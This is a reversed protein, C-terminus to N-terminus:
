VKTTKLFKKILMNAFPIKVWKDRQKFLLFGVIVYVLTLILFGWYSKGLLDGVLLALGINLFFFVLAAILVLPIFSLVSSVIDSSKDVAKLKILDLRTKAYESSNGILSEILDRENSM